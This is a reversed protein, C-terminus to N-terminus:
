VACGPLFFNLSLNSLFPHTMIQYTHIVLLSHCTLFSSHLTFLWVLHYTLLSLNFTHFFCFKGSFHHNGFLGLHGDTPRDFFFGTPKKFPKTSLEIMLFTNLLTRYSGQDWFHVTGCESNKAPCLWAVSLIKIEPTELQIKISYFAM